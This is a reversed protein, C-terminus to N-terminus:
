LVANDGLLESPIKILIHVMSFLLHLKQDCLIPPVFAKLFPLTSLHGFTPMRM